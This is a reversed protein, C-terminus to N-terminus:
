YGLTQVLKEAEVIWRGVSAEIGKQWFDAHTPDLGFPAVLQVADKTSGARLLDLYLPEFKFGVVDRTAMLSQTFLEGFAYAYVYFPSSYLHSIYSWLHDVHAYTFVEGEPGYFRRTVDMWLADMDESSLKGEKRRAYFAQEFASFSIQRLVTNFFSGMKDMYLALRDEPKELTPLLSEFTLMEGFISATEAYVLPAHWMLPGQAEAALMGHLGHGMEHALTMVDDVSGLHNLMMYSRVGEPLMMTANFAGSAKTKAPAADVWGSPKGVGIIEDMLALLTPSFDGYGKRVIAVTEDWGYVKAPAFPMSANRDSWRLTDRGLLRAKLKYYRQAYAGGTVEVAEHLALVTADDVRNHLNEPSMAHAYGRADVDALHEGAVVNLARAYFYTHKQNGMGHHLVELARAREEGDRSESVVNLLEPLTLSRGGLEFRLHTSIEDVMDAWESPGFPARLTLTREVEEPLYHKAMERTHRLMPEHHRVVPDALLEEFVDEALGAVELDFFTLYKGQAAVMAEQVRSGEKRATGNAADKALMLEFYGYLKTIRRSIDQYAVLAAGLKDALQGKYAREFAAMHELLVELDAQVMADDVGAYFATFDWQVKDTGLAQPSKDTM